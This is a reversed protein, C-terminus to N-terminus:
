NLTGPGLVTFSVDATTKDKPTGVKPAFSAIKVPFIWETQADNGYVIKYNRETQAKWDAVLGDTANHSADEPLYHITCSMDGIANTTSIKEEVPVGSADDSDFDTADEFNTSLEPPDFNIVKAVKTFVEPSGGDGRMLQSGKSTVPKPM